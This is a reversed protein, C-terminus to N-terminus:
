DVIEANIVTMREGYNADFANMYYSRLDVYHGSLVKNLLLRDSSFAESTPLYVVQSEQNVHLFFPRFLRLDLLGEGEHLRLLEDPNCIGLLSIDVRFMWKGNAFGIDVEKGNERLHISQVIM